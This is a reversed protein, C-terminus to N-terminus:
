ESSQVPYGLSKVVDWAAPPWYRVLAEGVIYQRDIAGFVRSDSSHNRNDGMVFYQETGLQWTGDDCHSPLCPENIYPEVLEIGNVYIRTNRIEIHEGPLGIVRKIYDEQPNGPYHFVIIDGRQPQSLLYNARSVILFQGTRFSPEMSPGQVIFRATALNVLAYIAGILVITDLIERIIGRRQIRPRVLTTSTIATDAALERLSHAM